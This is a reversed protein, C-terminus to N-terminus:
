LLSTTFKKDEYMAADAEEYTKGCGISVSVRLAYKIRTAVSADDCIIAFEDGGIRYAKDSFRINKKIAKSVAEIIRDGYAHGYADNINKFKDIDIVLIVDNKRRLKKIDKNFQQKNLLLTGSDLKSRRYWYLCAGSLAVNLAISVLM